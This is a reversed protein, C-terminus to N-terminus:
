IRLQELSDFVYVYLIDELCTRNLRANYRNQMPKGPQSFKKEIQKKQVM